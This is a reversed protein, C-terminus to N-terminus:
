AGGSRIPETAAKSFSIKRCHSDTEDEDGFAMGAVGGIYTM